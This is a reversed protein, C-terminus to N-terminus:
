DILALLYPSLQLKLRASKLGKLDSDLNELIVFLIRKLDDFGNPKTFFYSAGLQSALVIDKPLASTSYMIVPISKFHGDSKLKRLFNWGDMVPMNVDLFIVQPLETLEALKDLAEQGNESYHAVVKSNIALIAEDFLERDDMDDDVLLVVKYLRSM